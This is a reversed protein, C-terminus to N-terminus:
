FNKHPCINEIRKPIVCRPVSEMNLYWKVDEGAICSSELDEM